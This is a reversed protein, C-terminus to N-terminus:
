LSFSLHQQSLATHLLCHFIGKAHRCIMRLIAPVPTVGKPGALWSRRMWTSAYPALFMDLVAKRTTRTASAYLERRRARSDQGHALRCTYEQHLAHGTMQRGWRSDQM